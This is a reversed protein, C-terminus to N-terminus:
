LRGFRQASGLKASRTKPPRFCVLGPSMSFRAEGFAKGLAPEALNACDPPGGRSSTGARRGPACVSFDRPRRCAYLFILDAQVVDPESGHPRAASSQLFFLYLRATKTSQSISFLLFM